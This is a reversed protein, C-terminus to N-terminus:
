YTEFKKYKIADQLIDNDFSKLFEIKRKNFVINKITNEVHSLPAIVGRDLREVLALLYIALSDKVEYYNPTKLFREQQPQDLFYLQDRIEMGSLWISDSLFYNSFQFSLSDLFVEDERDFKKFRKTIERRDVNDPPFSIYRLRYVPEKLKFNKKYKKYYEIVYDDVVLTDMSSKLVFERYTNRFLGSEYDNVLDNLDSIKDAPLNIISMEYLLKQHAWSNIFNKVRVLSDDKSDFTKFHREIDSRYLYHNEARAVLSDQNSSNMGTCAMITSILCVSILKKKILIYRISNM